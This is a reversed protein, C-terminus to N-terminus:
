LGLCSWRFTAAAECLGVISNIISGSKWLIGRVCVERVCVGRVCVGGECV